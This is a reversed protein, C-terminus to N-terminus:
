CRPIFTFVLELVLSIFLSVMVVELLECSFVCLKSERILQVRVCLKSERILHVRRLMTASSQTSVFSFVRYLWLVFSAECSFVCLISERSLYVRRLGTYGTACACGTGVNTGASNAPCAVATCTLSGGGLSGAVCTYAGSGAPTYGSNCTQTCTGGTVLSSCETGYGAATSPKTACANAVCAMACAVHGVHVRVLRALSSTQLSLACRLVCRHMLWFLLARKSNRHAHRLVRLQQARAPAACTMTVSACVVCYSVLRLM